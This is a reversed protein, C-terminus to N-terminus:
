KIEKNKFVTEVKLKLTDTGICWDIKVPASHYKKLLDMIANTLTEKQNETM